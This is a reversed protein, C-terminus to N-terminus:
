GGPQRRLWERLAPWVNATRYLHKPENSRRDQNEVRCDPHTQAYRSLFSTVAERPRGVMKAIDPASLLQPLVTAPEAPPNEREHGGAGSALPLLAAEVERTTDRARLHLGNPDELECLRFRELDRLLDALRSAVGPPLADIPGTVAQLLEARIADAREDALIICHKGPRDPYPVESRLAAGLERVAAILRSTDVSRPPTETGPGTPSTGGEPDGGCAALYTGIYRLADLIRHHKTTKPIRWGATRAHPLIAVAYRFATLAVWDADEDYVFPAFDVWTTLISRFERDAETLWERLEDVGKPVRDLFPFRRTGEAVPGSDVHGTEVAEDSLHSPGEGMLAYTAEKLLRDAAPEDGPNPPLSYPVPEGQEPTAWTPCMITDQLWAFWATVGLLERNEVLGRIESALEARAADHALVFLAAAYRLELLPNEGEGQQMVKRLRDAWLPERPHGADPNSSHWHEYFEDRERILGGIPLLREVCEGQKEDFTWGANRSDDDIRFFHDFAEVWRRRLDALKAATEARRREAM